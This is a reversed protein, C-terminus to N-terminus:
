PNRALGGYRQQVAQPSVEAVRAIATWTVGAERARLVLRDVAAQANAAEVIARTLNHMAEDPDQTHEDTHAEFAAVPTKRM